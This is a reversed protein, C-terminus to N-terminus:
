FLVGLDHQSLIGVVQSHDIVDGSMIQCDRCIVCTQQRKHVDMLEHLVHNGLDKKVVGIPGPVVDFEPPWSRGVTAPTPDHVIRIEAKTKVILSCEGM